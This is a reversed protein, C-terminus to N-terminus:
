ARAGRALRRLTVAVVALRGATVNFGVDRLDYIREPVLGQIGEDIWGAVLTVLVAVPGPWKSGRERLAAEVLGAFVGYELFHLREEHRELQALVLVYLAGSLLVAVIEKWGPKSRLVRWGAIAGALAVGLLVSVRMEGRARLFDVVRRAFFIATYIAGLCLAAAIWLKKERASVATVRGGRVAEEVGFVEV